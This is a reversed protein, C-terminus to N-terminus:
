AEKELLPAIQSTDEWTFGDETRGFHGYAATQRFVPRRLNLQEIIGKPTFSIHKQLLEAIRSDEIKGTGQTQVLFSVPEAVGIAYALQIACIDALGSAVVNKAAFRAIYSGSRDVKTADKGSFAGGGHREWGGYTDVIIKRGTLGADAKPGGDVFRGTPNIHIDLDDEKVLENPLATLVVKEILEDRIKEQSIDPHHQSSVVVTKVQVPTQGDYLLTVQSKGDPRLWELTGNKRVETLKRTLKHALVIPMPMLVDTQKCAYGFMMGQDGAGARDVGMAIDCAQHDITTLVACTGADFGSTSNNYGIDRVVERVIKPIDVYTNTSIEGGVLVMGTTVFTECAVRGFPDEELIADLVADSIQDAVKDPHGETVSESTFLYESM